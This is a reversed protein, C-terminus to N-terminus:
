RSSQPARGPFLLTQKRRLWLYILIQAALAAATDLLVDQIKGTRKPLFSQHWEDLSAVLATMLVAISTWALSWAPNGRVTLTSRWARFLLISLIGYGLVHGTKRMVFHWAGFHTPDIGFLYHLLPYLFRGTNEASLASTSEFFILGLWLLAPLWARWLSTGVNGRVNLPV